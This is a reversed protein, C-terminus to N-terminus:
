AILLHNTTSKLVKSLSLGGVSLILSTLCSELHSTM